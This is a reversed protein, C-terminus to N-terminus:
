VAQVRRTALIAGYALGFGAFAAVWLAGSLVLLVVAEEPRLAACIRSLASLVIAAYIAQTPYSAHLAHGTHGLSARTMVALTMTAIAGAFAHIGAAAPMMGLGALGTLLLGLPVFGYAVHLILVLPERRTRHGAWRALRAAQLFAAALLMLGTVPMAPLATWLLLAAGTAAIVVTDFRGLPAPLRGPNERALWSRTFSPVIRGGILTILMGAFIPLPAPTSCGASM